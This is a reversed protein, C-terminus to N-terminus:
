LVKFDRSAADDIQIGLHNFLEDENSLLQQSTSSTARQLLQQAKVATEFLDILSKERSQYYALEQRLQGNERLLDINRQSENRHADNKSRRLQGPLRELRTTTGGAQHIRHDISSIESHQSM